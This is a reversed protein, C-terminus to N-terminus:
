VCISRIKDKEMDLDAFNIWFQQPFFCMEKISILGTTTLANSAGRAATTVQEDMFWKCFMRRSIQGQVFGAVRRAKPVLFDCTYEDANADGCLVAVAIAEMVSVVVDQWEDPACTKKIVQFTRLVKTSNNLISPDIRELFRVAAQGPGKTALGVISLISYAVNRDVKQGHFHVGLAELKKLLEPGSEQGTIMPLRLSAVAFEYFSCAGSAAAQVRLNDVFSMQDLLVQTASAGTRMRVTITTSAEYLRMLRADDGSTLAEDLAIILSWLVAHGGCAPLDRFFADTKLLEEIADNSRICTPVFGPFIFREFEGAESSNALAAKTWLGKCADLQRWSVADIALDNGNWEKVAPLFQWCTMTAEYMGNQRLSELCNKMNWQEKFTTASNTNKDTRTFEPTRQTCLPNRLMVGPSTFLKVSTHYYVSKFLDLIWDCPNPAKGSVIDKESPMEPRTPPTKGLGLMGAHQSPCYAGMSSHALKPKKAEPQTTM